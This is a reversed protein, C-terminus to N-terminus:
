STAEPKDTSSPNPASEATSETKVPEKEKEEVLVVEPEKNQISLDVIENVLAVVEKNIETKTEEAKPESSNVVELNSIKENTDDKSEKKEIEVTVEEISVNPDTQINLSVPAKDLDGEIVTTITQEEKAEDVKDPSQILLTKVQKETEAEAKPFSSQNEENSIQEAKITTIINNGNDDTTKIEMEFDSNSSIEVITENAKTEVVIETNSEDSVNTM